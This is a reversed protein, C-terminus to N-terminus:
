RNVLNDAAEAQHLRKLAHVEARARWGYEVDSLAPSWFLRGSYRWPDLVIGQEFTAGLSSVIVTSHELRFPNEYNAIAWHLDLSTFRELELRTKLDATWDICLGRDKVGLNVMLNHFLASGSVQYQNALERSYEIAIRAARQAEDTDISPHLASISRGLDGIRQQEADPPLTLGIGPTACANLLLVILLTALNRILPCPM